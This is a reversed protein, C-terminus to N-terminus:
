GNELAGSDKLILSGGLYNGVMIFTLLGGKLILLGTGDAELQPFQQWQRYALISYVIIATTNIGGHILAKRLASPKAEAVPVLDFLGATVALWGTLAGGALAFFAADVFSPNGTWLALLSCVLDMPLLATPFHVLMMHLPHGFIKM